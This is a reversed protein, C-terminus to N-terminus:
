EKSYMSCYVPLRIDSHIACVCAWVCVCMCVGSPCFQMFGNCCDNDNTKCRSDCWCSASSSLTVRCAVDNSRDCCSTDLNNNLCSNHASLYVLMLQYFIISNLNIHQMGYCGITEIDSCCEGREHCGQDCSCTIGANTVSCTNSPGRM